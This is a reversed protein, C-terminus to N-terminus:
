SIVISGTMNQHIRCHIAYTGAAAVVLDATGGAPVDVTFSGDDATVSHAVSDANNVTITQGANATVAGFTSGSIELAAASETPLTDLALGAPVTGLAGGPVAISDLSGITAPPAAKDSSCAGM